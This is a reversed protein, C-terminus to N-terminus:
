KSGVIGLLLVKEKASDVSMCFAFIHLTCALKKAHKRDFAGKRRKGEFSRSLEKGRNSSRRAGKIWNRLTKYITSVVGRCKVTQLSPALEDDRTNARKGKEEEGMKRTHMEEATGGWTIVEWKMAGRIKRQGVGDEGM